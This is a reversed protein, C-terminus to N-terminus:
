VIGWVWRAYVSAIKAAVITLTFSAVALVAITVMAFVVAWARTWAEVRPPLITTTHGNVNRPNAPPSDPKTTMM